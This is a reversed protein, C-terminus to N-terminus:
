HACHGVVGGLGGKSEAGAAETGEVKAAGVFDFKTEWDLRRKSKGGSCNWSVVMGPGVGCGLPVVRGGWRNPRGVLRLGRIVFLVTRSM